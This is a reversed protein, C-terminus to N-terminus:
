RIPVSALLKKSEKDYFNVTRVSFYRPIIATVTPHDLYTIKHKDYKVNCYVEIYNGAKYAINNFSLFYQERTPPVAMVIVHHFRFNPTDPKNILGFHKIFDKRDSIVMFNLGKHLPIKDDLYFGTMDRLNFQRPQASLACCCLLLSCALLIKKSATKM